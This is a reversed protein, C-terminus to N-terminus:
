KQSLLFMKAVLGTRSCRCTNLVFFEWWSCLIVDRVHSSGKVKQCPGSVPLYDWDTIKLAALLSVLLTSRFRMEEGARVEVQRVFPCRAMLLVLLCPESLVEESICSACPAASLWVSARNYSCPFPLPRWPHCSLCMQPFNFNGAKDQM